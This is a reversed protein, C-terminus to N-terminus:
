RQPRPQFASIPNIQDRLLRGHLLITIHESAITELIAEPNKQDDMMCLKAGTSLAGFVDYVSLDFGFESLGIICDKESMSCKENIDVITNVASHHEIAVGKPEGTTGSTFIITRMWTACGIYRKYDAIVFKHQKM